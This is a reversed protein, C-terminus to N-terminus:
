SEDGGCGAEDRGVAGGGEVGHGGEALLLRWCAGPGFLLLTNDDQAFRLIEATVWEASLASCVRSALIEGKGM